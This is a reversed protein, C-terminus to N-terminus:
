LMITVSGTTSVAYGEFQVGSWTSQLLLFQEITEIHDSFLRVTVYKKLELQKKALITVSSISRNNEVDSRYEVEFKGLYLGQNKLCNNLNVLSLEDGPDLFVTLSSGKRTAYYLIEKAISVLRELRHPSGFLISNLDFLTLGNGSPQALMMGNHKVLSGTVGKM